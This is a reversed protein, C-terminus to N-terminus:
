MYEKRVSLLVIDIIYKGITINQERMSMTMTNVNLTRSNRYDNRIRLSVPNLSFVPFDEFVADLSSSHHCQLLPQIATCPPALMSADSLM